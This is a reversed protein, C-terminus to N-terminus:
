ADPVYLEEVDEAYKALVHRRRLNRSPTLEDNVTFRDPLVRFREVAVSPSAAKNAEDVARRLTAALDPDDRLRAVDADSPKHHRRKWEAFGAPDLTILVGAYPRWDGVVVCDEVLRHANLRNEFPAPSLTGGHATVIRERKRGTVALGGDRIKGLDGTRLWGDETFAARTAAEDRWYGAFVGPGRVQVEGDRAVRVAWRPLPRGVGRPANLTVPGATETLGYSDLAPVGAGCLFHGLRAPFPAASVIHRIRGGLAARFRRYVLTDFVSHRFTSRRLLSDREGHRVACREAPGALWERGAVSERVAAARLAELVRPEAVILTPRFSRVEEIVKDPVTVPGAHASV